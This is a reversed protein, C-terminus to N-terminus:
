KYNDNNTYQRRKTIWRKNGYQFKIKPHTSIATGSWQM